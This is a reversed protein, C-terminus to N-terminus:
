NKSQSDIFEADRLAASTFHTSDHMNFLHISNTLSLNDNWRRPHSRCYCSSGDSESLLPCQPTPRPPISYVNKWDGFSVVCTGTSLLTALDPDHIAVATRGVYKTYSSASSFSSYSSQDCLAHLNTDGIPTTTTSSGALTSPFLIM